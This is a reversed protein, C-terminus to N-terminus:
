SNKGEKGDNSFQDRCTYILYLPLLLVSSTFTGKNSKPLLVVAPRFKKQLNTGGESNDKNETIPRINTSKLPVINEQPVQYGEVKDDDVRGGTTNSVVKSSSAGIGQAIEQTISTRSHEEDLPVHIVTSSAELIDEM